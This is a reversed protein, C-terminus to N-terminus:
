SPEISPEITAMVKADATDFLLGFAQQEERAGEAASQGRRVGGNQVTLRGARGCLVVVCCLNLYKSHFVGIARLRGPRSRVVGLSEGM